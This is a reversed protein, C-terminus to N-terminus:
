RFPPLRDFWWVLVEEGVAYAGCMATGFAHLGDRWDGARGETAAAAANRLLEAGEHWAREDSPLPVDLLQKASLKIADSSLAAGAHRRLCVATVPPSALAAALLWLEDVPAVVAVVPVSPWMEGREDVLLEVVRTQTAVLLKPVLVREGWQALAPDDRRLRTLDVVPQTFRNGAFKTSRRSWLDHVLDVAGSTVLRAVAGDNDSAAAVFPRLGYFQDRFGATASARSGVREGDGLAVDPVGLLDAALPAWTAGDALATASAKSMPAAPEADLGRWRHISSPGNGGAEFVPVCVRVSASFLPAGPLWVGVLASDVAITRRVPMADRAALFSEPLILSFRGGPRTMGAAAALFLTASDAYGRALDGYRAELAGAEARTRATRTALQSQFPPNGVVLDFPDAASSWAELGSVLTDAQVIHDGIHGARDADRTGAAWIALAARTTAVALPDADAGWLLDRVIEDRGLGRAELVKAAALLFAGGGVAPDCVTPRSPWSWALTARDVVIAASAHPTFFAGRRRREDRDRIVDLVDGM